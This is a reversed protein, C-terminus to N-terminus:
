YKYQINLLNPNIYIKVKRTSNFETLKNEIETIQTTLFDIIEKTVKDKESLVIKNKDLFPEIAKRKEKLNNLKFIYYFNSKGDKHLQLNANQQALKLYVLQEDKQDLLDVINKNFLLEEYYERKKKEKADGIITAFQSRTTKVENEIREKYKLLQEISFRYILHDSVTKSWIEFNDFYFLLLNWAEKLELSWNQFLSKIKEKILM